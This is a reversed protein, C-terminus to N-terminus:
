QADVHPQKESLRWGSKKARLVAAAEGEPSGAVPGSHTRWSGLTSSGDYTSASPGLRGGPGASSAGGGGPAPAPASPYLPAALLEGKRPSEAYPPPASTGAMFPDPVPTPVGCESGVEGYIRYVRHRRRRWLILVLLACFLVVIGGTVGGTVAGVDLTDHSPVSMLSSTSPTLTPTLSGTPDISTPPPSLIGACNTLNKGTETNFAAKMEGQFYSYYRCPDSHALSVLNSRTCVV